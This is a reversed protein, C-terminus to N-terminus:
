RQNYQTRRSTTVAMMAVTPRSHFLENNHRKRNDTESCCPEINSTQKSQRTQIARHNVNSCKETRYLSNINETPKANLTVVEVKQGSLENSNDAMNDQASVARRARACHMHINMTHLYRSIGLRHTSSRRDRIRM